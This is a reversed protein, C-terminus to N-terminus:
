VSKAAGAFQKTQKEWGDSLEPGFETRAGMIVLLRREPTSQPDKPDTGRDVELGDPAGDGDTDERL